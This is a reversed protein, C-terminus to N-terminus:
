IKESLNHSHPIYTLLHGWFSWISQDWIYQYFCHHGGHVLGGQAGLGQWSGETLQRQRRQTQYLPSAKNVQGSQHPVVHQTKRVSIFDACGFINLGLLVFNSSIVTKFFELIHRWCLCGNIRDPHKDEGFRTNFHSGWHQLPAQPLHEPWAPPEKLVPRTGEGPYHTNESQSNVELSTNFPAHGKRKGVQEQM